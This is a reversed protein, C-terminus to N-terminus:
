LEELNAKQIKTKACLFKLLIYLQSIESYDLKLDKFNIYNGTDEIEFAIEGPYTWEGNDSYYLTYKNDEQEFDYEHKGDEFIVTKM